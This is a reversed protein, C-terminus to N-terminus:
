NNDLVGKDFELFFILTNSDCGLFLLDSLPHKIGGHVCSSVHM